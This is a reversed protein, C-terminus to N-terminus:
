QFCVLRYNKKGTRLILFTSSALDKTTLRYNFNKEQTNNLYVGGSQVLKRAQGNSKCAGTEVLATLLGWGDGALASFEKNLSPVDKFILRITEDDLDTIQEGFLIGSARLVKDLTNKGHVILTIEAALKKQAKRLHPEIQLSNELEKIEDLSLRTLIKLFRIVDDDAQNLFYQYFEYPSTKSRDLWITGSESKGFKNGDSKTVLPMTLGYVQAECLRRTLDIGSVINGWQDSGGLQLTCNHKEYLQVFDYAQLLMYSFETFSIGAGERNLRSKISDRNIMASVSFHKGIDRLFDLCGMEQFWDANNAVIAKNGTEFNLFRTMQEKLGAINVEMQEPQLLNREVSRGGPDGIMGTAGGMLGIPYHGGQQLFYMLNIMALHGVHLSAATPDYGVYFTLGGKSIKDKLETSTINDVFGRKELDDFLAM